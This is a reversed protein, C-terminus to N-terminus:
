HRIEVQNLIEEALKNELDKWGAEYIIRIKYLFVEM